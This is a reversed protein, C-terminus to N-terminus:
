EPSHPPPTQHVWEKSPSLGPGSGSGVGVGPGSSVVVAGPGSSVVSAGPGSSVVTSGSGPDEHLEPREDEILCLDRSDLCLGPNTLVATESMRETLPSWVSISILSLYRLLFNM